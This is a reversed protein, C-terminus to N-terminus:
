PYGCCDIGRRHLRTPSWGSMDWSHVLDSTPYSRRGERLQALHRSYSAASARGSARMSGRAAGLGPGPAQWGREERRQGRGERWRAQRPSANLEPSSQPRIRIGSHQPGAGPQGSAQDPHRGEEAAGAGRAMSSATPLGKFRPSVRGRRWSRWAICPLSNQTGFRPTSGRAAGLGSGSAQTSILHNRVVRIRIWRHIGNPATVGRFDPGGSATCSPPQLLRRKSAWLRAHQGPSGRPRTRTGAVRAGGEAAGAGRAAMSTPRSTGFLLRSPLHAHWRHTATTAVERVRWSIRPMDACTM